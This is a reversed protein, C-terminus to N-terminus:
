EVEIHLRKMLAAVRPNNLLKKKQGHNLESLILELAEKLEKNYAIVKDRMM